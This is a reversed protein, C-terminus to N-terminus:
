SPRVLFPRQTKPGFGLSLRCSFYRRGAPLALTRALRRVFAGRGRVRSHGRKDRGFHYPPPPSALTFHPSQPCHRCQPSIASSKLTGMTRMTESTGMGGCFGAVMPLVGVNAVRFSAMGYFSCLAGKKPIPPQSAAGLIPIHLHHKFFNINTIIAYFDSYKSGFLSCFLENISPNYEM